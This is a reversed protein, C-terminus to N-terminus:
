LANYKDWFRSRLLYMDAMKKDLDDLYSKDSLDLLIDKWRNGINPLTTDILVKNQIQRRTGEKNMLALLSFPTLGYDNRHVRIVLIERTLISNLDKKYVIGVDGIRYSGRRVFVIDRENLKKKYSWLRKYEEYPIDDLRNHSIELNVIDKVRIYPYEGLGKLESRPSGHGDFYTVVGEEILQGVSVQGKLFQPSFFPRAVLLDKNKLQLFDVYEINHLKKNNKLAEVINPIDDAIVNTKKSNSDLYFKPRGIHDHGIEDIKIIMVKKQQEINKQLFIINCKANNYPRFTDHPLDVLCTINNKYFIYDRIEKNSPSHFISEPLIIGLIGGDKLYNLSQELFAIEIKNGFKYKKAIDNRLKIDKGFPPNTLIYDFKNERIQAQTALDWFSCDLSDEVFIGSKGDGLIIMYAKAIKALFADKEIGFLNERAFEKKVIEKMNNSFRKEEIKNWVYFMATSLFSGTGLAPDYITDSENPQLINVMLSAVNSPTFFQGQSGKTAYSIISEFAESVVNKPSDKLSYRQLQYVIHFLVDKNLSISEETDFVGDWKKKAIEFIKIIQKMTQMSDEWVRFNAFEEEPTYYEDYLKTIILLAIQNLISEDRTTGVANAAIFGRLNKFISKLNNTPILDKIKIEDSIDFFGCSPIDYIEKYEIKKNKVIKEIFIISKEDKVNGNFWVGYKVFEDFDMYNKLQILGESVSERKTEVFIKAVGNYYNDENDFVAIDVPLGRRNDSPSRKVKYETNIFEKKYLYDEVLRKLMIQRNKEEPTITVEKGTIYDLIKM